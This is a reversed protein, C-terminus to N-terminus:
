QILRTNGWDDVLKVTSSGYASVWDNKVHGRGLDFGSDPNSTSPNDPPVAHGPCVAQEYHPTGIAYFISSPGRAIV